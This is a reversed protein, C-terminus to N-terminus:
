ASFEILKEGVEVDSFGFTRQIYPMTDRHYIIVHTPDNKYNWRAFDISEDYLYTKIFLKGATVILDRLQAFGQKPFHFHEVVECSCVYDYKNNLLETQNFFLPDYAAIDYGAQQLVFTIVPAHGAGFDLGKASPEFLARVRETIPAVFQQFRPDDVQNLHELYRTQEEDRTPWDEQPRFLCLCHECQYFRHLSSEFFVKGQSDCLPCSASAPM